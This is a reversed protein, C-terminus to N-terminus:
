LIHNIYWHDFCICLESRVRVIGVVMPLINVSLKSSTRTTMINEEQVGKDAGALPLHRFTGTQTSVSVQSSTDVAVHLVTVRQVLTGKELKHSADTSFLVGLDSM